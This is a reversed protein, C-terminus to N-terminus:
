QLVETVISAPWSEGACYYVKAMPDYDVVGFVVFAKCTITQIRLGKM